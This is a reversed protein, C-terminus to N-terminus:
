ATIAPGTLMADKVPWVASCTFGDTELGREPEKRYIGDDRSIEIQYRRGLNDLDPAPERRLEVPPPFVGILYGCPQGRLQLVHLRRFEQLRIQIVGHLSVRAPWHIVELAAKGSYADVCDRRRDVGLEPYRGGCECTEVCRLDSSGAAHCESHCVKAPRRAV